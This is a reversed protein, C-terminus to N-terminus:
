FVVTAGLQHSGALEQQIYAYDIAFAGRRIGFGASIDAPKLGFRLAVCNRYWYEVGFSYATEYATNRDLAATFSHRGRTISYAAGLKYNRQIDDQQGSATSWRVRARINQINLGLKLKGANKLDSLAGADMIFIAGVDAGSGSSRYKDLSQSLLKLSAGIGLTAWTKTLQLNPTINVRVGRGWSLFLANESAGFYGEPTASPRFEASNKRQGATGLPDRFRPIDGVGFRIWNIGVTGIPFGQAYSISDFTALRAFRSAHMLTLERKKIQCLGAPNWYAATSDDAVAVFAGSLGSARAGSGISLFECSYSDALAQSSLLFLAIVLIASLVNVHNVAVNSQRFADPPRAAINHM